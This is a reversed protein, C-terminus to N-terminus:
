RRWHPPVDWAPRDCEARAAARSVGIDELAAADLRALARRQRRLAAMDRLIGIWGTRGSVARVSTITTTM